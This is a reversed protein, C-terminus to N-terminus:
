NYMCAFIKYVWRMTCHNCAFIKDGSTFDAREKSGDEAIGRKHRRWASIYVKYIDRYVFYLNLTSSFIAIQKLLIFILAVSVEALCFPPM